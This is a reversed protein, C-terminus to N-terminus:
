DEHARQMLLRVHERSRGLVRAIETQKEGAEVAAIVAATEATVARKRAAVAQKLRRMAPSDHETMGPM